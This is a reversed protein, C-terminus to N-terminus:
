RPAESGGDLGLHDLQRLVADVEDELDIFTGRGSDAANRKEAIVDEALRSQAVHDRGRFRTPVAKEAVAVIVIGVPQGVIAFQQALEVERLAIGIEANDRRYR